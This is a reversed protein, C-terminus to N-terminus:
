SRFLPMVEQAFLRLERVQQEPDPVGTPTLFVYEPNILDRIRQMELICDDPSGVVARNPAFEELSVAKGGFMVQKSLEDRDAKSGLDHYSQWVKIVNPLWNSDLAARTRAIHLDRMLCLTAPRGHEAAVAKYRSIKVQLEILHEAFSILWGDGLRGARLMAPESVAGIWLPTAAGPMPPPMLTCPPINFHRGAYSFRGGAFALRLIELCEELRTARTKFDWGVTEFEERQYGIGAGLVFRNNSMENLTSVEEAIEVPHHAPLLMINTCVRMRRTRALLAALMILPAAPESATDGGFATSPSFRHQGCWGMDYGLDEMENLYSYLRGYPDSSSRDIMKRSIIVGFKM